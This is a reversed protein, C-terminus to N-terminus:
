VGGDGVPLAVIAKEIRGMTTDLAPEFAPAAFAEFTEAASFRGFGHLARAIPPTM